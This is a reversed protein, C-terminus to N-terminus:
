RNLILIFGYRKKMEGTTFSVCDICGWPTYGMLEVGDLLVAKKLEEIHEKLYAIQYDDEITGDPQIEDIAGFRNEVINIYDPCVLACAMVVAAYTNVGFKKAATISILVPLFTFAMWSIFNLIHYTGGSTDIVNLAVFIGLMGQLIGCAALKYLFPAFISSIIDVIRNFIGVKNKSTNAANEDVTVLEMVFRFVDKVHNGIM